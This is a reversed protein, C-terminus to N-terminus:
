TSMKGDRNFRLLLGILGTMLALTVVVILVKNTFFALTALWAALIAITGLVFTLYNM